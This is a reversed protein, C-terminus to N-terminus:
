TFAFPSPFAQKENRTWVLPLVALQVPTIDRPLKLITRKKRNQYAYELAVYALRDSGFSPEIVHPIFHIGKEEKETRVIEVHEPLIRFDEVQVVDTKRVKVGESHRTRYEPAKVLEVGVAQAQGPSMMISQMRGHPFYSLIFGFGDQTKNYELRAAGSEAVRWNFRYNDVVLDQALGLSITTGLFIACIGLVTWFKQM